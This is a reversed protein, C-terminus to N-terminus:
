KSYEEFQKETLIGHAHAPKVDYDSYCYCKSITFEDMPCDSDHLVAIIYKTSPPSPSIEIGSKSKTTKTSM